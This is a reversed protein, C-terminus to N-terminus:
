KLFNHKRFKYQLSFVLREISLVNTGNIVCVEAPVSNNETWEGFCFSGETMQTRYCLARYKKKEEWGVRWTYILILNIRDSVYVSASSLAPAPCPSPARRGLGWSFPRRKRKIETKREPFLSGEILCHSCSGWLDTWVPVIILGTVIDFGRCVNLVANGAKQKFLFGFHKM